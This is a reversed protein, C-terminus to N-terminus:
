PAGDGHNDNNNATDMLAAAVREMRMVRSGKVLLRVDSELEARLRTILAEADAFVEAGPGFADAARAALPGLAFLREVGQEKARLGCDRHMRAAEAGLEGMDGLALWPRGPQATLVDLGAALSAPNANYTDDFLRAGRIAACAQMRGQVAQFGELGAVIRELPAGVALALGTAALANYVNHKGPVPLTLDAAGAPTRLHVRSGGDCPRWQARIDAECELGFSLRPRNSALTEWVGCRPDDYNLVATATEPMGAFLEGKARAVGDLDGFGELHAPGANTIVAADPQALTTLYAIEGPHNAGMELVAYDHREPDLGFLTLPVGVANNFNGQTAHVRNEMFGPAAFVAATMARVTTKGNSGTVGVLPRRFKLRWHRALDGLATLTDTVQIHPTSVTVARDVVVAAAREARDLYDHADFNPGKLAFFLEGDRLTRTDTSVDTFIADAGVLRGNMARAAEQLSLRIM